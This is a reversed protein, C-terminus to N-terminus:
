KYRAELILSFHGRHSREIELPFKNKSEGTACKEISEFGLEQLLTRLKREYFYNIHGHTNLQDKTQLSILQSCIKDLDRSSCVELLKEYEILIPIHHDGEKHCSILCVFGLHEQQYQPELPKRIAMDSKLHLALESYIKRNTWFDNIVISVDPVEVRIICGKNINKKLKKFTEFIGEDTVHEFVHACYIYDIKNDLDSFTDRSEFNVNLEAGFQDVTIWQFPICYSNREGIALKNKKTFFIFNYLRRFIIHISVFVKRLGAKIIIKKALERV